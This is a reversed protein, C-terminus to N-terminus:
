ILATMQVLRALLLRNSGGHHCATERVYVCGCVHQDCVYTSRVGSWHTTHRHVTLTVFKRFVHWQMEVLSGPSCCSITLKM